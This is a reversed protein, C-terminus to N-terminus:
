VILNSSDKWASFFSPASKTFCRTRKKQGKATKTLAPTTNQVTQSRKNHEPSLLIVNTQVDGLAGVTFSQTYLEPECNPKWKWLFSCPTLPKTDFRHKRTMSPSTSLINFSASFNHLNTNRTYTYRPITQLKQVDVQTVTTPCISCNIKLIVTTRVRTSVTKRHETDQHQSDFSNRVPWWNYFPRSPMGPCAIFITDRVHQNQIELVKVTGQTYIENGNSLM